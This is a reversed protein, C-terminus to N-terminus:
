KKIKLTIKQKQNKLFDNQKFININKLSPNKDIIKLIKDLSIYKNLDILNMVSKFFLLDEKYDLTMRIDNRYFRKPIKNLEAVKFLNTETFYVWMFETDDSDKIECVKKLADTKIAYSFTGAIINTAQIFDVNDEKFQNFARDIFTPECFLDDGDATVFHSISYEKAAGNWRELKDKVSGRFYNINNKEAIECLVDDEKLNTTCLIILKAEKSYKLRSILHEIAYKNKIKIIAKNPLRTSQTRASIFIANSM